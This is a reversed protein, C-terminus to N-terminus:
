CGEAAIYAEEVGKLQEGTKNKEGAEITYKRDVLFDGSEPYHLEHGFSLQNVLFTERLNGRDPEARASLYMLSTNELFIKDPKQLAGLGRSRKYISTILKAEEMYHLYAILTQRNIKIRDSMRTINPIFPASEAIISLLRKLKGVYAIEINRLYPLETELVMLVTEELRMLYNEIGELFYPYYGRQLYEDFYKFPKVRRVIDSALNQHGRVIDQLNIKAFPGLGRLNLYERFSLGQLTHVVARRSLDARANIIELLSSGTFVIKLEPYDDYMNKIARAWLPYKHVEDLYIVEGGSKVFTDVTEVLDHEAFWLDDLSVYLVSDLNDTYHQKIHQLLLTTKGVSRAGKIGVLRADWHILNMVGRISRMDVAEIKRRFKEILRYM